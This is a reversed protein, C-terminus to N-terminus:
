EDCHLYMIIGDEKLHTNPALDLWKGWAMNDEENQMWSQKILLEKLEEYKKLSKKNQYYGLVFVVIILVILIIEM